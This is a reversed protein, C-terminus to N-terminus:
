GMVGAEHALLGAQTRNECGLKTLMRSVYSKVTAESLHLKAAVAANSMGEGLCRLLDLERGTLEDVRARAAETRQQGGASATMVRRAAEKSMVMHGDAAVRVLGILDEPPTTKLLFGSAGARLAKMVHSDTDFTTLAVLAPAAPMKAIREIATLGDVEPMRLDMLMVDPQFRIAAEIAEAGDQATGVVEIDDASTLVTRLHALVMPEDDVLVLRIM